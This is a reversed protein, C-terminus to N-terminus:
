PTQPQDVAFREDYRKYKWYGVSVAWAVLFLGIIVFGLYELSFTNLWGWFPGSLNLQTAILQLLEIGGIGFAVAVSVITVTLNYYIKRLPNIFAWGYAVRMTVGDSTDVMVMGCMFMFPLILIM